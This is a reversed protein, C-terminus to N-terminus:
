GKVARTLAPLIELCDGVIGFRAYRFIAADPDRNIAVLTKAAACGVMHQSAGSIGAAIYLQPRTIKGTLGVQRAPEAWGEDVIPRSAAAMGGLADALEHILRYNAKDGLGRGGAVLITAEEIRPGTTESRAVVQVREHGAGLDLAVDRVPPSPPAPAPEAALASTSMGVVYRAAGALLYVVRTDGGFASATVAIEGGDSGLALGNMVIGADIRAALRPATVRADFTQPVLLLRFDRQGAYQALAEVAVDGGFSTVKADAIRDVAAVGHRGAIGGLDGSTPGVVVWVLEGGLATAVGHGLTLLEEAGGTTGWTCVVVRSM